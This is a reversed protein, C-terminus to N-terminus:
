PRCSRPLRRALSPFLDLARWRIGDLEAATFLGCEALSRHNAAATAPTTCPAGWDSGYVIHDAGVTALAPALAHASAVGATDLYLGAVQADVDEATVGVPVWSENGLLRLRGTLTPFAGGCHAIVFTINPFRQFTRNILMDMVVRGTEFAVEYLPAPHGLTPPRRADPHVFVVAGWEDLRALLPEVSEDGLHVGNYAATVAFGDAALSDRARAAEALAAAVDDTPLAALLGFRTPHRAVIEAGYDNSARLSALDRPINSLLQTATGAADMQALTRELSWEFPEPQYVGQSLAAQWARRRRRPSTPPSFHAHIDVHGLPEASPGEPQGPRERQRAPSPTM